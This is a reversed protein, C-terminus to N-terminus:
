RPRRYPIGNVLFYVGLNDSDLCVIPGLKTLPGTYIGTSSNMPPAVPPFPAKRIRAPQNDPTEVFYVAGSDARVGRIPTAGSFYAISVVKASNPDFGFRTVKTEHAVFFDNSGPIVSVARAFSVGSTGLIAGAFNGIVIQAGATDVAGIALWYDKGVAISGPKVQMPASAFSPPCGVKFSGVPDVYTACRVGGKSRAVALHSGPTTMTWTSGTVAPPAGNTYDLVVSTAVGLSITSFGSGASGTVNGFNSLSALVTGSTAGQSPVSALAGTLNGTIAWMVTNGDVAICGDATSTTANGALKCAGGECTGACRSGCAGCNNPDKTFDVCTSGNCLVCPPGADVVGTGGDNTVVCSQPDSICKDDAKCQGDSPDCSQGAPCNSGACAQGLHIPLKLQTHPLYRLVRKAVICNGPDTSNCDVSKGQEISPNAKSAVAVFLGVQDQDDGSPIITLSGIRGGECQLTQFQSTPTTEVSNAAGIRVDIGGGSVVDACPVDTTVELVIATPERCAGVVLVSAVTAVCTLGLWTKRMTIM